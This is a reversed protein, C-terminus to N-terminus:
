HSRRAVTMIKDAVGCTCTTTQSRDATSSYPKQCNTMCTMGGADTIQVNHQSQPMDWIDLVTGKTTSTFFHLAEAHAVM